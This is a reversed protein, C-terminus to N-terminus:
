KGRIMGIVCRFSFPALLLWWLSGHDHILYGTWILTSILAFYAFLVRKYRRTM